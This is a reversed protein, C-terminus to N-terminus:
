IKIGSETLFYIKVSFRARRFTGINRKSMQSIINKFIGDITIEVQEPEVDHNKSKLYKISRKNLESKLQTIQNNLKINVFSTNM